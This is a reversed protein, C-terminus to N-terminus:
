TRRSKSIDEARRFLDWIGTLDRLDLPRLHAIENRARRLGHLLDLAIKSPKRPSRWDNHLFQLVATPEQFDVDVPLIDSSNAFQQRWTDGLLGDLSRISRASLEALMPFLGAAHERWIRRGLSFSRQEDTEGWPPGASGRDLTFGLQAGSGWSEVYSDPVSWARWGTPSGGLQTDKGAQGDVRALNMVLNITSSITEPRQTCLAKLISPSSCCAGAYTAVMWFRRIESSDPGLLQSSVTRTEEWSLPNWLQYIKCSPGNLSAPLIPQALSILVYRTTTGMERSKMLRAASAFFLSWEDSIGRTDSPMRFPIHIPDTGCKILASEVPESSDLFSAELLDKPSFGQNGDAFTKLTGEGRRELEDDCAGLIAEIWEDHESGGPFQIVALQSAEFASVVESALSRLSSTGALERM